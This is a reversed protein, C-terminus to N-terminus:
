PCRCLSETVRPLHTSAHHLLFAIRSTPFQPICNSRAALELSCARSSSTKTPDYLTRVRATGSAVNKFPIEEPDAKIAGMMSRRIHLRKKDGEARMGESGLDVTVCNGEKEKTYPLSEASDEVYAGLGAMLSGLKHTEPFCMTLHHLM